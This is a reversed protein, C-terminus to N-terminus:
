HQCSGTALSHAVVVVAVVVLRFHAAAAAAAQWPTDMRARPAHWNPARSRPHDSQGCRPRRSNMGRVVMPVLPPKRRAPQLRCRRHRHRCAAAGAAEGLPRWMRIAPAPAAVVAVVVGPFCLHRDSHVVASHCRCAVAAGAAGPPRRYARGAAAAACCPGPRRAAAAAAARLDVLRDRRSSGAEEAVAPLGLRCHSCGEGAEALHLPARSVVAATALSAHAAVAAVARAAAPAEVAAAAMPMAAAAAGLAARLRGAAAAAVVRLRGAAAVEVAPRDAWAM